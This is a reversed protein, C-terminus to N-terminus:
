DVSYYTVRRVHLMCQALLLRNAVARDNWPQEWTTAASMKALSNSQSSPKLYGRLAQSVPFTYIETRGTLKVDLPDAIVRLFSAVTKGQVPNRNLNGEFTGQAETCDCCHLTTSAIVLPLDYSLMDIEVGQKYNELQYNHKNIEKM